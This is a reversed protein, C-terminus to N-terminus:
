DGNEEIDREILVGQFEPDEIFLKDYFEISKADYVNILMPYDKFEPENFFGPEDIPSGLPLENSHIGIESRQGWEVDTECYFGWADSFVKKFKMDLAESLKDKIEDLDAMKIGYCSHSKYMDM